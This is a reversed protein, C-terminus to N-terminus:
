RPTTVATSSSSRAAASRTLQPAMGTAPGESTSGVLEPEPRRGMPSPKDADDLKFDLDFKPGDGFSERAAEVKEALSEARTEASSKGM